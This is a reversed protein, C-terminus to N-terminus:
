EAVVRGGGHVAPADVTRRPGDHTAPATLQNHRHWLLIGGATAVNNSWPEVSEIEVLSHCRDLVQLPLGHDEAGLLYAGRVPHQYAGLLKARPDLEVGVLPTSNPLHEVLDDVTEFHILPIAGSAKTTDSAQHQYRRGVTFIFAAGYLHASRWLSGINNETKPHYVGIAFFGRTDRIQTRRTV